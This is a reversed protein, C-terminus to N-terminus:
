TGFAPQNVMIAKFTGKMEYTTGKGVYCVDDKDLVVEQNDFTLILQGELVFYIRNYNATEKEYYDIAETTALSVESTLDRTVYNIAVKNEAIKRISTDSKRIIKYM